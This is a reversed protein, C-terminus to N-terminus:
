VLGLLCLALTVQKQSLHTTIRRILEPKDDLLAIPQSLCRSNDIRNTTLIVAIARSCTAGNIICNWSHGNIPYSSPSM